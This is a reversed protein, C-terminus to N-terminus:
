AACGIVDTVPGVQRAYGDKLGSGYYFEVGVACKKTQSVVARSTGKIKFGRGALRGQECGLIVVRHAILDAAARATRGGHRPIGVINVALRFAALQDMVRLKGVRVRCPERVIVVGRNEIVTLEVLAAGDSRQLVGAVNIELINQADLAPIPRDAGIQM